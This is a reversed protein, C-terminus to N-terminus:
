SAKDNFSSAWSSIRTSSLRRKVLIWCIKSSLTGQLRISSPICTSLPSVPTQVAKSSWVHSITAVEKWRYCRWKLRSLTAATAVKALTWRSWSDNSSLSYSSSLSTQITWISLQCWMPSWSCANWMSCTNAWRRSPPPSNTIAFARRSHRNVKQYFIALTKKVSLSSNLFTKHSLGFLYALPSDKQTFAMPKYMAAAARM